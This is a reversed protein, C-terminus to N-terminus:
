RSTQHMEKAKKEQGYGKIKIKHNKSNSGLKELYTSLDELPQYRNGCSLEASCNM